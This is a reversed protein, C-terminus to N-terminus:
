KKARTFEAKRSRFDKLLDNSHERLERRIKVRNRGAGRDDLWYRRTYEHRPQSLREGSEDLKWHSTEIVLQAKGRSFYFERRIFRQSSEVDWELKRIEKGSM